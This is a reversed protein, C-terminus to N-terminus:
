RLVAEAVQEERQTERAGGPNENRLSLGIARSVASLVRQDTTALITRAKAPSEGRLVTVFVREV